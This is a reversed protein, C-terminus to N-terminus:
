NSIVQDVKLPGNPPANKDGHGSGGSGGGVHKTPDNPSGGTVKDMQASTLSVPGAQGGAPTVSDALAFTAMAGFALASASALLIRKM